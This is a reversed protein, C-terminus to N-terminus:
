VLKFTEKLNRLWGPGQGEERAHADVEVHDERDNRGEGLFDQLIGDGPAPRLFNWANRLDLTPWFYFFSESIFNM